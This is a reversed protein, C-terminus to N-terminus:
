VTAAVFGMLLVVKLHTIHVHGRDAGRGGARARPERRVVVGVLRRLARAASASM